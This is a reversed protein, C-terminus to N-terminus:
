KSVSASGPTHLCTSQLVPVWIADALTPLSHRETSGHSVNQEFPGASTFGFRHEVEWIIQTENRRVKFANPRGRQINLSYNNTLAGGERHVARCLPGSQPRLLHWGSGIVSPMWGEAETNQINESSYKGGVLKTHSPMGTKPNSPSILLKQRQATKSEWLWATNQLSRTKKNYKGSHQSYIAPETSLFCM